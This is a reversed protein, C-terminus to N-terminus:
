QYQVAARMALELNLEADAYLLGSIVDYRLQYGKDIDDNLKERKLQLTARADTDFHVALERTLDHVRDARRSEATQRKRSVLLNTDNLVRLLKEGDRDFLETWKTGVKKTNVTLYAKNVLEDGTWINQAEAEFETNEYVTDLSQRTLIEALHNEFKTAM